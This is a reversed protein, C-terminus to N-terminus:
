LADRSQVVDAIGAHRRVDEVDYLQRGRTNKGRRAVIGRKAWVRVTGRPVNYQAEIERDTLATAHAAYAAHVANWYSGSDYVRHCRPCRWEDRLGGRDADRRGPQPPLARRVLNTGCHVCPAGSEDRLGEHMVDELRARARKIDAAFEDFALHAQAAHSLHEDLYDRARGLTARPGGGHGFTSRWDDEWSALLSLPPEPDGRYEDAAHPADRGNVLERTQARGDSGPGLLVTADAGPIPAGASLRGDDGGLCAQVPLEHVLRVIDALAQRVTAVCSACTLPEGETTHEAACVVCHRENCPACGRCDGLGGDCHDHHREPIVRWGLEADYRCARKREETM